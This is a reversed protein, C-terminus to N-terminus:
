KILSHNKEIWTVFNDSNVIDKAYKALIHALKNGQCRVHFVQAVRFDQLQHYVWSLYKLYDYTIHMFRSLM